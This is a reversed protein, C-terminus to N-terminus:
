DPRGVERWEKVALSLAVEADDVDSQQADTARQAEDAARIAQIAALWSDAVTLVARTKEDM